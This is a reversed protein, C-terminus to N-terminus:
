GPRRAMVARPCQWRQQKPWPQTTDYAAALPNAFTPLRIRIMHYRSSKTLMKRFGQPPPPPSSTSRTQQVLVKAWMATQHVFKAWMATISSEILPYHQGFVSIYKNYFIYRRRLNRMPSSKNGSSKSSCVAHSVPLEGTKSDQNKHFMRALVNHGYLSPPKISTTTKVVNTQECASEAAPWPTGTRVDAVVVSLARPNVVQTPWIVLYVPLAVHHCSTAPAAGDM